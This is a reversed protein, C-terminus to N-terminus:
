VVYPGHAAPTLDDVYKGQRRGPARCQARPVSKGILVTRAREFRQRRWQQDSVSM